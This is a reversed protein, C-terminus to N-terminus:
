NECPSEGVTASTKRTGWTTFACRKLTPRASKGRTTRIKSRQMFSGANSRACGSRLCGHGDGDAACPACGHADGGHLRGGEGSGLLVAVRSLEGDVGLRALEKAAHPLINIGVGVAKIEPSSEFVRSPIGAKELALALALGGIGGGVILVDM